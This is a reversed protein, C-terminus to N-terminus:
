EPRPALDIIMPLHDSIDTDHRQLGAERLADDSLSATDLIFANVIRAGADGVLAYDLRGPPFRDGENRWTVRLRRGLNVTDALALDSGDADTGSALMVRPAPSGVLNFDGAVVVMAPPDARVEGRLTERIARAEALRQADEFGNFGGCCKLHLSAAVLDGLPTRVRAAAVRVGRDMDVEPDGAPAPKLTRTDIRELPFRSVVSVGREGGKIASWVPEDETYNFWDAIEKESYPPSDRDRDDWEQLLLVDPRLARMFRDFSEENRMPSGWLVNWSVVRIAGDPKAPIEADAHFVNEALPPPDLRVPDRTWVTNGDSDFAAVRLTLPGRLHLAARDIRIEFADAAHTPAWAFAGAVTSTSAPNTDGGAHRVISVGNGIAGEYPPSMQLRLDVGMGADDWALRQGTEGSDDADILVSVTWPAQQLTVTDPTDLRLYVAREDAVALPQDAWENLRGDLDIPPAAAATPALLALCALLLTPHRSANMGSAYRRRPWNVRLPGLPSLRGSGPRLPPVPLRPPNLIRQGFPSSPEFGEEPM